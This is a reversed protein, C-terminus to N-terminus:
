KTIRVAVATMDDAPTGDRRFGAVAEFLGDVITQTPEAHLPQLTMSATLPSNLSGISELRVDWFCVAVLTNLLFVFVM